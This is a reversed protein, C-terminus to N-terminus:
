QFWSLEEFGVGSARKQIWGRVNVKLQLCWGGPVELRVKNEEPTFLVRFTSTMAPAVKRCANSPSILKFYPSSELIVKM